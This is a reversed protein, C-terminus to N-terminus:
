PNEPLFMALVACVVAVAYAAGRWFLAGPPIVNFSTLSVIGGLGAWTSPERFSVRM